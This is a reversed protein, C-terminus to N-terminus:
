AHSAGRVTFGAGTKRPRPVRRTVAGAALPDPRMEAEGDRADVFQMVDPGGLTQSAVDGAPTSVLVTNTHGGLRREKEFLQVRHRRSLLYAAALGSVGAGIVAINKM